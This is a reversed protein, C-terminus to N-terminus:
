SRGLMRKLTVDHDIFHHKCAALAHFGAFVVLAWALYEHVTGAIDEQNDIGSFLAPVEFLAFFSIGRGDATSILYGAIMLAFLGAYLLSHGLKAALRIRASYSSLLPPAPSFFRWILRLLMLGFVLLGLSKHLAPATQRWSSYYGLDVMWLGLGFLGFVLLAVSWHLVISILGYRSLSNRWQMPDVEM